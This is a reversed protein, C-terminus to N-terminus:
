GLAAPTKPWVRLNISAPSAFENLLALLQASAGTFGTPRQERKVRVIEQAVPDSEFAARNAGSRNERYAQLFDESDWGWAPLCATVWHCFDAM